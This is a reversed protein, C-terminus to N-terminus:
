KEADSFFVHLQKRNGDETESILKKSSLQLKSIVYRNDGISCIYHPFPSQTEALAEIVLVEDGFYRAYVSDGINFTTKHAMDPKQRPAKKPRTKRKPKPPDTTKKTAEPM